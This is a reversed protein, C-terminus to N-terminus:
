SRAAPIVEVRRQGRWIEVARETVLIRAQAVAAEDGECRIVRAPSFVRGDRDLEFIRYDTM